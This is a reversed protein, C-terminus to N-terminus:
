SMHKIQYDSNSMFLYVCIYNLPFHTDLGSNHDKQKLKEM